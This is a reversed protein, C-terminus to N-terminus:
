AAHSTAVFTPRGSSRTVTQAPRSAHRSAAVGRRPRHRGGTVHAEATYSIRQSPTM